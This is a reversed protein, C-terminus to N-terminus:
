SESAIEEISKDEADESAQEEAVEATSINIPEIITSADTVEYKEFNESKANVKRVWIEDVFITFM